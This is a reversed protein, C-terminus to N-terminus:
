GGKNSMKGIKVWKDGILFEAGVGSEAHHKGELLM